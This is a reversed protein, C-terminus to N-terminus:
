PTEAAQPGLGQRAELVPQFEAGMLVALRAVVARSLALEAASARAVVAPCCDAARALTGVRCRAATRYRARVPYRYAVQYRDEAPCHVALYRGEVLCHIAVQCHIVVPCRAEVLAEAPYHTARDARLAPVVRNVAARYCTEAPDRAGAQYPNVRCHIVAQFRVAVQYDGRRYRVARCRITARPRRYGAPQPATEGVTETLALPKFLLQLDIGKQFFSERRLHTERVGHIITSAGRSEPQYRAGRSM